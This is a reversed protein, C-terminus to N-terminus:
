FFDCLLFIRLVPFRRDRLLSVFEPFLSVRQAQLRRRSTHGRAEMTPRTGKLRRLGNWKTSLSAGNSRYATKRAPSSIMLPRYVGIVIGGLINNETERQDNPALSRVPLSHGNFRSDASDFALVVLDGPRTSLGAAPDAKYRAQPRDHRFPAIPRNLGPSRSCFIM